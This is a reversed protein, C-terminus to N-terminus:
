IHDELKLTMQQANRAAKVIRLLALEDSADAIQKWYKKITKKLVEMQRKSLWGKAALQKAFSTMLPSDHGTFGVKNNYVTREANQEEVTQRSMITLLAKKAWNDNTSLKDRIFQEVEKKKIDHKLSCLEAWKLLRNYAEDVSTFQLVEGSEDNKAQEKTPPMKIMIRYPFSNDTVPGQGYYEIDAGLQKVKEELNKVTFM